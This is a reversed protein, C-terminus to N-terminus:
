YKISKSIKTAFILDKAKIKGPGQFNLYAIQTEKCDFDSTLVIQKLNLLIDLISERIGKLYSYEHTVGQIDVAVIALGSLESLLVRRLANAITLGQGGDFPGLQFRGYFTTNNEIRSEICTLLFNEM